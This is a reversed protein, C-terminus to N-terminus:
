SAVDALQHLWEVMAARCAPPGLVVAHDLFTLVFSRFPPWNRVPVTFVVSGDAREETAVDPGLYRRAWGAQEADVLLRVEVLDEDGYDWPRALEDDSPPLREFSDPDGVDVPGVIRDVRFRRQEDRAHDRGLVYWHGLQFDLRYPDITRTRVREGSRYAFTVPRCEVVAGFLPILAPESPLEAVHEAGGGVQGGLKWLAEVGEVGEVRVASLALNLAALEDPELGPDPLRYDGPHIRYGEAPPDRFPIPEVSIPIGMDRLAQKDREFARHFADDREPYGQVRERLEEATLPRATHLLTATLKLLREVKDM